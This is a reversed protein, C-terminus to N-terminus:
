LFTWDKNNKKFYKDKPKNEDVVVNDILPNSILEKVNESQFKNIHKVLKNGLELEKDTNDTSNKQVGNFKLLSEVDATKSEKQVKSSKMSSDDSIAKANDHESAEKKAVSADNSFTQGSM